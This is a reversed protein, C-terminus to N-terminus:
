RAYDQWRCYKVLTHIECRLYFSVLQQFYVPLQRVCNLLRYVTAVQNRTRQLVKHQVKLKLRRLLVNVLQTVRRTQGLQAFGATDILTGRGRSLAGARVRGFYEFAGQRRCTL